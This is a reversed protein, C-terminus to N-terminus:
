VLGSTWFRLRRPPAHRPAVAPPPSRLDAWRGVV